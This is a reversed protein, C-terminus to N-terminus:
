REGPEGALRLIETVVSRGCHFGSQLLQSVMSGVSAVLGSQKALVLVGLTGTVRMQQAKAVERGLHDDIIVYSGPHEMALALVSAEGKGLDPILDLFSPVAIDQIVCWGLGSIDPINLGQANGAELEALVQPTTHIRGFLDRLVDLCGLQHLYYLPSTNSVIM